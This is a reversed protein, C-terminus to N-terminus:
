RFIQSSNRVELSHSEPTKMDNVSPVQILTSPVKRANTVKAYVTPITQRNSTLNSLQFFAKPANNGKFLSIKMRNGTSKSRAKGLHAPTSRLKDQSLCKGTDSIRFFPTRVGATHQEELVIRNVFLVSTGMESGISYGRVPLMMKTAESELGIFTGRVNKHSISEFGLVELVSRDVFSVFCTESFRM